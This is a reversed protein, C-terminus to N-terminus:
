DRLEIIHLHTAPQLGYIKATNRIAIIKSDDEIIIGKMADFVAKNLNDPLDPKTPKFIIRGSAIEPKLKDLSKPLPFVYVLYNIVLKGSLPTMGPIKQAQFNWKLWLEKNMTEKDQFSTIKHRKKLKGPNHTDPVLSFTANGARDTAVTSRVSQKSCPIGEIRFLLQQKICKEHLYPIPSGHNLGTQGCNLCVSDSFM